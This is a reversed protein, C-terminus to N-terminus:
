GAAQVEGVAPALGRARLIELMAGAAAEDTVLTTCAIAATAALIAPARLAGGSALIRDGALRLTELDISMNRHNIPHDVPAGNADIFTCMVDGVAGCRVLSSHEEASLFQRSLSAKPSSIEGVSVVVIDARRAMEFIRGLGCREILRDKTEPSDVVLPAPFLHCDAGLAGAVRWSYEVPNVERTEVAGGLLSVVHVGTRRPPNFSELSAHLTRGWGVGITANDPIADSLHRGLALGVSRATEHVGEASPVIIVNRLGLALQLEVALRDSAGDAEDIWFRVEHRERVDELLRIVTSRSIGMAEAIQKQTMNHAFYMWAVRLRISRADIARSRRETADRSM